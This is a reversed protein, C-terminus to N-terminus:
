VLQSSWEGHRKELVSTKVNGNVVQLIKRVSSGLNSKGASGISALGAGQIRHGITRTQCENELVGPRVWCM